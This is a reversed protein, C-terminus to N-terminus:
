KQLKNEKLLLLREEELRLVVDIQNELAEKLGVIESSEEM